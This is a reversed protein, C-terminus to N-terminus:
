NNGEYEIIQELDAIKRTKNVIDDRLAITRRQVTALEERYQQNEALLGDEKLRNDEKEREL